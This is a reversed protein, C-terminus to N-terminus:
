LVIGVIILRHKVKKDKQEKDYQIQAVIITIDDPKGGTYNFNHERAKKSFPSLYCKDKSKIEAEAALAKAAENTNLKTSNINKNLIAVIQDIELNDWLGDSGVVIIDNNNVDHSM